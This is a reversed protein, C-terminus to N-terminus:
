CYETMSNASLRRSMYWYVSALDHCVGLTWERSSLLDDVIALPQATLTIVWNLNPAATGGVVSDAACSRM